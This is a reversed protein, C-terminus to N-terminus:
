SERREIPVDFRDIYFAFRQRLRDADLGFQEATYRHEGHEARPHDDLWQQVRGRSAEDYHLGAHRCITELTAHPDRMLDRFYIDISRAEVGPDLDRVAVGRLAVLEELMASERGFLIPDYSPNQSRYFSTLSVASPVVLAPDRHTWVFRADPYARVLADLALLHKPYKLVWTGPM